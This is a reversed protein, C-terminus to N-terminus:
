PSISGDVNGYESLGAKTLMGNVYEVDESDFYSRWQGAQGKRAFRFSEKLGQKARTDLGKEEEMSRITDFKSREIALEIINKDSIDISFLSIIKMVEKMENRKLDEYTIVIDAKAVWNLYHDIWAQIGFKEDRILSKFTFENHFQKFGKRYEWYSVLTDLPNRSLYIVRNNGFKREDYIQHTAVLRPLKNYKIKPYIHGDFSSNLDNNLLEYDVLRGDLELLSILNGYIFRFWTTGSKPFTALIVDSDKLGYRPYVQKILNIWKLRINM